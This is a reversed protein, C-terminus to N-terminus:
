ARRLHLGIKADTDVGGAAADGRRHHQTHAPGDALGHGDNQHRAVHGIHRPQKRRHSKEGGANDGTHTVCLHAAEIM